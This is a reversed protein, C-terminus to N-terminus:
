HGMWARWDAKLCTRLVLDKLILSVEISERYVYYDILVNRGILFRLAETPRRKREKRNVDKAMWRRIPEAVGGHKRENDVPM